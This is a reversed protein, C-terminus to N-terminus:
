YSTIRPVDEFLKKVIWWAAEMLTWTFDKVDGQAESVIKPVRDLVTQCVTSPFVMNCYKGFVGKWHSIDEIMALVVKLLKHVLSRIPTVLKWFLDNAKHFAVDVASCVASPFYTSCYFPRRQQFFKQITHMTNDLTSRVGELLLAVSKLGSKNLGEIVGHVIRDAIGVSTQVPLYLTLLVLDDFQAHRTFLQFRSVYWDVKEHISKIWFPVINPLDFLVGLPVVVVSKAIRGVKSPSLVIKMLWSITNSLAQKAFLSTRPPDAVLRTVASVAYCFVQMDGFPINM